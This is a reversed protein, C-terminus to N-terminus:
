QSPGYWALMGGSNATPDGDFYWSGWPLGIAVPDTTVVLSMPSPLGGGSGTGGNTAGSGTASGQSADILITATLNITRGAATALTVTVAYSQGLTGGSLLLAYQMDGQYADIATLASDPGSISYLWGTFTDSCDSLWATGDFVFDTTDAGAKTPLAAAATQEFVGFNSGGADLYDALTLVRLGQSPTRTSGSIWTTM